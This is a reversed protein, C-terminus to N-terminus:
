AKIPEGQGPNLENSAASTLRELCVTLSDRWSPLKLGYVRSLKGCGLRSNTPRRARTPYAASAIPTLVPRRLAKTELFSFIAEALGAWSTEGSGALHFLGRLRSDSPNELLNRSLCIIAAAIDPAYTPCGFQDNVVRVEDRDRALACMTRVFNKGYPAYVWATRLILHNPTAAAVAREGALKTAGYVSAPAPHDEETYPNPKKGDFVYDTSLQIVPVGMIRAAEAVAGPGSANVAAALEPEEEAQDVATYAGANVVIDPAAAGLTKLITSPVSLDLEPRGLPIVTVGPEAAGAESLARAVQGQKGVVALRMPTIM